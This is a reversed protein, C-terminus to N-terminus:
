IEIELQKNWKELSEKFKTFDKENRANEGGIVIDKKEITCMTFEDPDDWGWNDVFTVIQNDANIFSIEQKLITIIEFSFRYTYYAILAFRKKVIVEKSIIEIKTTFLFAIFLSLITIVIICITWFLPIIFLFELAMGLIWIIGVVWWSYEPNRTKFVFNQMDNVAM